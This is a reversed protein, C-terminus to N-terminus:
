PKQAELEKMAADYEEGRATRYHWLVTNEMFSVGKGKVTDAIVVIPKGHGMAAKAEDYAAKLADHDHGDVRIVHWGFTRWKEDLPELKITDEVPALSQFKNFDVTVILNDLKFQNAILATEWVAGEDCEGDGVICFVNHKKGDLKAAMAMGMAMPLGQGLSGTSAEVGPVGKHSVHGSLRSGNQCHTLLEEVPFFGSEALAAYIGAGAHGKSLLVRDREPMKPNQPDYHLVDAYLVAVLDAMSMISGIHSTGGRNTMELAHRRIQYALQVSKQSM